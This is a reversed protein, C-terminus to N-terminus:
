EPPQAGLDPQRVTLGAMDSSVSQSDQEGQNLLTQEEENTVPSKSEDRLSGESFDLDDDRAMISIHDDTEM